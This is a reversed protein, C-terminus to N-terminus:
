NRDVKAKNLLNNEPRITQYENKAEVSAYIGLESGHSRRRRNNLSTSPSQSTLPSRTRKVKRKTRDSFCLSQSKYNDKSNPIIINNIQVYSM